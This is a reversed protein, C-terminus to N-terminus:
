RRLRSGATTTGVTATYDTVATLVNNVLATVTGIPALAVNSFVDGSVKANSSWAATTIYGTPDWWTPFIYFQKGANLTTTNWINGSISKFQNLNSAGVYVTATSNGGPKLNPAIYLNSKLTISNDLGASSVSVFRGNQSNNYATNNAIILNSINRNAYINAGNVLYSETPQVYFAVGGNNTVVNDELLVNSIGDTINMTANTLINKRFVVDTNSLNAYDTKTGDAGGLPGVGTPGDNLINNEVTEYSGVQLNFTAKASDLSDAARAINGFVNYEALLRDTGGNRVIHERTSNSATNGVIVWDSGQCWTFYARVSTDSTTSNNMVIVGNPQAEGNIFDAVNSVTNSRIVIDKGAAAVARAAGTKDTVTPTKSDFNLNQITIDQASTLLQFLVTVSSSTPRLTPKAAAADGYDSFVVNSGSVNLSAALDWTDGRKLLIKSNNPFLALAKALTAVPSNPTLGDNKDSGTSSSVYVPQRTDGAITISQTTTAANGAEDTVTLSITYTGATDYVHGANFGDLSNFTSAATGDGFNWSYTATLLSGVKVSSTTAQVYVGQGVMISNDMLVIKATPANANVPAAASGSTGSSGSTTSSDTTTTGVSTKSGTGIVSTKSGSGITLSSSVTATSVFAATTDTALPALMNSLIATTSASFLSRNELAEFLSSKAHGLAVRASGNIASTDRHHWNSQSRSLISGFTGLRHSKTERSM